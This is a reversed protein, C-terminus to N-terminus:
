GATNTELSPINYRFPFIIQENGRETTLMKVPENNLVIFYHTFFSQKRILAATEAINSVHVILQKRYRIIAIYVPDTFLLTEPAM